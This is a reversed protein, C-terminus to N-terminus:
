RPAIAPTTHASQNYKKERHIIRKATLESDLSYIPVVATAIMFLSFFLYIASNEDKNLFALSFTVIALIGCGLFYAFGMWIFFRSGKGLEFKLELSENSETIKRHSWAKRIEHFSAIGKKHFSFLAENEEPRLRLGTVEELTMQKELDRLFQCFEQDEAFRETAEKIATKSKLKKARLWSAVKISLAIISGAVGLFATAITTIEKIEM